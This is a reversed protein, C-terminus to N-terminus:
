LGLARNEYLIGELVYVAKRSHVCWDQKHEFEIYMHLRWISDIQFPVLDYNHYM